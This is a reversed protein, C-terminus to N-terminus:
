ERGGQPPPNPHPACRAALHRWIDEVVEDTAKLVDENWYRLVHFGDRELRATRAQEYASELDHQTGDVEVVLRASFCAFDAFYPGIPVQRRFRHGNIQKRRLRAWLQREADTMNKRLERAKPSSM